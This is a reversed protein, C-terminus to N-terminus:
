VQERYAREYQAPLLDPRKFRWALELPKNPNRLLEKGLAVLDCAGTELAQVLLGEDELFGVAIVPLQSGQRIEAALPLLFGPYYPMPAKLLGGSSVHVLDMPRPLEGLWKIWDRPEIGGALWDTASIRIWLAKDAPWVDAVAAVVQRLFLSRDQGYADQRRNSLPSLFQHILYGHAAHIELGEFGAKDARRATQRYCSLLREIDEATMEEYSAEHENYPIASPALCRTGTTTSKRGAHNIQLAPVAGQDRIINALRAMGAIQADEWLGLCQDTIRGEPSIGTAEVIILAVQGIARAGYHALHFTGVQGDQELASYMCMPPMVIRNKLRMNRITLSDFVKM